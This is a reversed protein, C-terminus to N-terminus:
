GNTLILTILLFIPNVMRMCCLLINVFRGKINKPNGKMKKLYTLLKLSSKMDEYLNQQMLWVTIMRIATFFNYFPQFRDMSKFEYMYLVAIFM